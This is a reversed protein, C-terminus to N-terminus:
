PNPPTSPTTGFSDHTYIDPKGTPSKIRLRLRKAELKNVPKSIHDVLPQLKKLSNLM